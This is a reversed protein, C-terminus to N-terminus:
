GHMIIYVMLIILATLSIVVALNGSKFTKWSRGGPGFVDNFHREYWFSDWWEPTVWETFRQWKTTKRYDGDNWSGGYM